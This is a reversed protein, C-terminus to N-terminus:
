QLYIDDNQNNWSNLSCVGEIVNYPTFYLSFVFCKGIAERYDTVDKVTDDDYMMTLNMTIKRREQEGSKNLSVIWLTYETAPSCLVSGVEQTATSLTIPDPDQDEKYMTPIFYGDASSTDPIYECTGKKLDIEVGRASSIYIRLIKGWADIAEHSTACINIKVWTLLHDYRQAPFHSNPDWNGRIEKAFMLDDTGDITHSVTLNDTTEWEGDDPYLGVCCVDSGDTPYKLPNRSNVADGYVYELEPGEFTVSTHVPLNIETEPSDAYDGSARRFWVAAKLPNAASPMAGLYPKAVVRSSVQMDGVAAGLRIDGSGARNGPGDESCAPVTMLALGICLLKLSRM